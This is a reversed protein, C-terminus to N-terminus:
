SGLLENFMKRLNRIGHYDVSELLEKTRNKIAEKDSCCEGLYYMYQGFYSANDNSALMKFCYETAIPSCIGKDRMYQVISNQATRIKKEYRENLRSTYESDTNKNEHSKLYKELAMENLFNEEIKEIFHPSMMHDDYYKRDLQSILSRIGFYKNFDQNNFYRSILESYIDHYAASNARVKDFLQSKAGSFRYSHSNLSALFEIQEKKDLQNYYDQCKCATATFFLSFLILYIKM